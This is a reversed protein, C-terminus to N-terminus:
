GPKIPNIAMAGAVTNWERVRWSKVLGNTVYPDSKAFREAVEKSEGKFLLLATDAPDTFAGGIVLDGQAHAGWAMNLHAERFEARRTLYDDALDYVLLFHKM